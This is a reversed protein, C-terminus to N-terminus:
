EDETEIERQIYWISKKLDTVRDGKKGSRLIYKLANGLNYNLKFDEIVDICELRNGIYHSPHNIINETRLPDDSDIIKHKCLKDQLAAKCETEKM